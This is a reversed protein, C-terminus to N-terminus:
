NTLSISNSPFILPLPMYPGGYQQNIYGAINLATITSVIVEFLNNILGAQIYDIASLTFTDNWTGLINGKIDYTTFTCTTGNVDIGIASYGNGNTTMALPASGNITSAKLVGGVLGINLAMKQNNGSDYLDFSGTTNNSQNIIFYLHKINTATSTLNLQAVASTLGLANPTNQTASGTVINVSGAGTTPNWSVFNGSLFVLGAPTWYDSATVVIGSSQSNACKFNISEIDAVVLNIDNGYRYDIGGLKGTYFIFGNTDSAQGQSTNWIELRFNKEIMQNTYPTIAGPMNDGIGRWLSYRTVAGQTQYSICLTYNPSIPAVFSKLSFDNPSEFNFAAVIDSYGNWTNAGQNFIPLMIFTSIRTLASIANDDLWRQLQRPWNLAGTDTVPPPTLPFPM